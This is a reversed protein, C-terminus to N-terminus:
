VSCMVNLYQLRDIDSDVFNSKLSPFSIQNHLHELRVENFYFNKFPISQGLSERLFILWVAELVKLILHM